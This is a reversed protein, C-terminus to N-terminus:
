SCPIARKLESGGYKENWQFLLFFSVFYECIFSIM